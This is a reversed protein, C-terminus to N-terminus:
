LHTFSGSVRNPKYDQKFKITNLFPQELVLNHDEAEIMFIAYRTKLGSIAVDVDDYLGLFLQSYKIHLILKLKQRQKMVLKANEM